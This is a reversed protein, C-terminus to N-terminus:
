ITLSQTVKSPSSVSEKNGISAFSINFLALYMKMYLFCSSEEQKKLILLLFIIILIYKRLHFLTLFFQVYHHICVTTLHPTTFTIDVHHIPLIPKFTFFIPIVNTM